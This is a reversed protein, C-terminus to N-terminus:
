IQSRIGQLCSSLVAGTIPKRLFANMGASRCLAEENGVSRASIGILPLHARNEQAERSRLMRALALGDIGPLDLDLLAADFEDVEIESLAALGHAVHRVRHGQAELLGAIVNAVTADDEVLLVRLNTATSATDITSANAATVRATVNEEISIETLPLTVTFCSGEGVRSELRIEGGMRAVLERCIALGLGSGGHRQAGQAQEFRQFLRERTAESIGPGTDRVSFQAAGSAARALEVNIRGHETFKIANNILNLYIQRIRM